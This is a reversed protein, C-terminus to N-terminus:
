TENFETWGNWLLLRFHSFNVVSPCVSPRRVSPRRVVSLAHDCYHVQAKPEPASFIFSHFSFNLPIKRHGLPMVRGFIIRGSGFKFEVQMNEQCMKIGFKLEFHWNTISIILPFQFNIYNERFGLPMVRSFIIRGSGFKLEVQTNEQCM